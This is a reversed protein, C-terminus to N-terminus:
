GPFREVHTEGKRGYYTIHRDTMWVTYGVCGVAQSRQKFEPQMVEGGQAGLIVEKIALGSFETAIQNNAPAQELTLTEGSPM